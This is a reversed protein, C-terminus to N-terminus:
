LVAKEEEQKQKRIVRESIFISAEYLIFLPVGILCQTVIDPPTIIAALILIIILSHRRYNRMIEPTLLGLKTFFYVAIPLEFVLGSPLTVMAMTNVYSSLTPAALIEGALDYGLLFNLAFPSIVFYGFCIGTLFLTSCVLVVGTTAEQEKKYLGPKVFRWIEWFIYPFTVVFGMVFSVKMHTFFQEGVEIAQLHIPRPTFCLQESLACLARYSLFGANRPGYIVSGFVFDETIFVVIAVVVIAIVSRILHWRLEELHELFSMENEKEKEYNDVDIQDLAM